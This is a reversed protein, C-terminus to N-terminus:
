RRASDAGFDIGQDKARGGFSWVLTLTISRSSDVATRRDEVGLIDAV